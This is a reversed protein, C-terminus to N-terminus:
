LDVCDRANGFLQVPASLPALVEGRESGHELQHAGAPILLEGCSAKARGCDTTCDPANPGAPSTTELHSTVEINGDVMTASCTAVAVTDCSSSLCRDFVVSIATPGSSKSLCVAGDDDTTRTVTEGPTDGNVTGDGTGGDSGSQGGCGLIVLLALLSRHCVMIDYLRQLEQAWSERPGSELATASPPRATTKAFANLPTGSQLMGRAGTTRRLRATASAGEARARL